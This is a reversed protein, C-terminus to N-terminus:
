QFFLGGQQWTWIILGGFMGNSFNVLDDESQFYNDYNHTSRIDEDLFGECGTLFLVVLLIIGKKM